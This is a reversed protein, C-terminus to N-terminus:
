IDNALAEIEAILEEIRSELAAINNNIEAEEASIDLTSKYTEFQGITVADTDNIGDAVYTIRREYGSKGVSVAGDVVEAGAGLAVDGDISIQFVLEDSTVDEIFFDGADDSSAGLVGIRWDTSPFSSSSSTDNFIVQPTDSKLTLTDFGFDENEICNEGVCLSSTVILDDSVVEDAVVNHFTFLTMLISLLLARIRKIHKEM